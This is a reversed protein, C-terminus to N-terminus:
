APTPASVSCSSRAPASTSRGSPRRSRSTSRVCAYYSQVVDAALTIRVTDRAAETALLDARAAATPTACGGGSTSRTPCTSRRATTRATYAPHRPLVVSTKSSARSRAGGASGDISPWLQSESVGVLARAEDVRAVALAIDQNHALAEDVLKDLAPDGFVSWWRDTPRASWRKHPRAAGPTRCSTRRGSTNRRSRAPRSCRPLSSSSVRRGFKRMTAERRRSRTICRRTRRGCRRRARTTRRAGPDGRELAARAPAPRHDAQLLAARLLDRPLDGRAHRGRRRHRGRAARRRGRRDLDRAAARRLHVCALDDPDTPLAAAGGRGRRGRGVAGRPAEDVRVRRDPDREQRRPRAAHGPRDPLVRREDPRPAVGRRARRVDRVADRAAGLAAAVMERVARRPDPVGHDRGARARAGLDRGGEEGPVVRRELRLLLRVAASRKAIKEVEQIAQGSSTGPAGAGLIKVAPLNNFRDLTEPGSSYKVEALSALPVM